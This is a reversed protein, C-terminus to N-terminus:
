LTAWKL